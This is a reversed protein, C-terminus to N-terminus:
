VTFSLPSQLLAETQPSPVPAAAGSNVAESLTMKPLAPMVEFTLASVVTPVISADFPPMVTPIPLPLVNVTLSMLTPSLFVVTVIPM